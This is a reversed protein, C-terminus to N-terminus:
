QGLKPLFPRVFFVVLLIFFILDFVRGHTRSSQLLAYESIVAYGGRWGFEYSPSLPWNRVLFVLDQGSRVKFPMDMVIDLFDSFARLHPGRLHSMTTVLQISSLLASFCFTVGSEKLATTSEYLNEVSMLVM